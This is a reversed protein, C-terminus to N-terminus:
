INWEVAALKFNYRLPKQEYTVSQVATQHGSLTFLSLQSPQVEHFTAPNIKAM